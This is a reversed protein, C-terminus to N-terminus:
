GADSLGQTILRKSEKWKMRFGPVTTRVTVKDCQIVTM